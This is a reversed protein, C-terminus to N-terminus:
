GNGIKNLFHRFQIGLNFSDTEGYSVFVIQDVDRFRASNDFFSLACDISQCGAILNWVVLEAALQIEVFIFQQGPDIAVSSFGDLFDLGFNLFLESPTYPFSSAILNQRGM